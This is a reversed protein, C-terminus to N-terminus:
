HSDDNYPSVSAAAGALKTEASAREGAKIQADLLAGRPSRSAKVKAMAEAIRVHLEGGSGSDDTETKRKAREPASDNLAMYTMAQAKEIATALDALARTSIAKFQGDKTEKTLLYTELEEPTMGTVRHLVRELFLRLRHAMVFNLARNIAREIDGPRNSKKLELIGKLRENWGEEDVARLLEVPRINLAHATRELDGCFTAYLLFAQERDFTVYQADTLNV